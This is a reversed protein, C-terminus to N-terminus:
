VVTFPDTSSGTGTFLTDAKLNIVPRVGYMYTVDYANNYLSGSAWVYFVYAGGDDYFYYPSMTWYTQGTYLYYSSNSSGFVGGAYAVEDATILGIPYQLSKNGKSSGIVTFLDSSANSCKLSPSNSKQLRDKAAYYIYGIPESSWNYGSAM